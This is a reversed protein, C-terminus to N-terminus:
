KRKLNREEQLEKSIPSEKIRIGEFAHYGMDKIIRLNNDIKKISNRTSLTSTKNRTTIGEAKNDTKTDVLISEENTMSQIEKLNKFKGLFKLSFLVILLILSHTEM